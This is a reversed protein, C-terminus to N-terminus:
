QKRGAQSESDDAEEHDTTEERGTGGRTAKRTTGRAIKKQAM